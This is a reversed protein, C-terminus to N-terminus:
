GGKKKVVRFGPGFPDFIELVLKPRTSTNAALTTAGGVHVAARGRKHIVRFGPGIPDFIEITVKRKKKRAPSRPSKKTKAKKAM